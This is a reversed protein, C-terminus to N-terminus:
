PGTQMRYGPGDALLQQGYVILRQNVIGKRYEHEGAYALHQDDRGRSVHGGKALKKAVPRVKSHAQFVCHLFLRTTKGLGEGDAAVEQRALGARQNEAVVHEVSLGEGLDDQSGLPPDLVLSPGDHETIGYLVGARKAYHLEIGLATHNADLLLGLAGPSLL